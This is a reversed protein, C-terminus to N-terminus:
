NATARQLDPRMEFLREPKDAYARAAERLHAPLAAFAAKAEAPTLTGTTPSATASAAASSQRGVPVQRANEKFAAVMARAGEADGAKYRQRLLEEQKGGALIRGDEVLEKVKTEAELDLEKAASAALAVKAKDLEAMSAALQTTLDASAARAAELESLMAKVKDVMAREDAGEALQLLKLVEKVTDKRQPTRARDRAEALSEWALIGTDPVAPRVVWSSEVKEADGYTWRIRGHDETEQGPYHYCDTAREGCSCAVEEWPALVSISFKAMTGQLAAQVAWPTVLLITEQFTVIGGAGDTLEASRIQGGTDESLLSHDRQFPNGPASRVLSQLAKEAFGIDNRNEVAAGQAYTQALIELEIHEGKYSRELLERREDSGEALSVTGSGGRRSFLAKMAGQAPLHFRNSTMQPLSM